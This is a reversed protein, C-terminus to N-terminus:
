LWVLIPCLLIYIYSNVLFYSYPTSSVKGVGPSPEGNPNPRPIVVNQLDGALLKLLCLYLTLIGVCLIYGFPPLAFSNRIVIPNSTMQRRYTLLPNIKYLLIYPSCQLVSLNAVFVILACLSRISSSINYLPCPICQKLKVLNEM